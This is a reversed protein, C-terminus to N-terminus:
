ADLTAMHSIATFYLACRIPREDLASMAKRYGELQDRYSALERASFEQVSEDALPRSTKYDIIWREGSGADVFTRDVISDRIVGKDDRWTLPLESAAHEHAADLLWRGHDEDALVRELHGTVRGEADALVEGALGLTRLHRRFASRQADSVEAPLGTRENSHIEGPVCMLETPAEVAVVRSSSVGM